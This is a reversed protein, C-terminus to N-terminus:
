QVHIPTLTNKLINLAVPILVNPFDATQVNKHVKKLRSSYYSETGPFALVTRLHTTALIRFFMFRVKHQMQLWLIVCM